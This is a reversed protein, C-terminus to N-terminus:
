AIGLNRALVRADRKLGFLTASIQDHQWLGGIFSLGPVDTSVGGAQRAFGFADTVSPEIWGLDQRYGTTWIVTSIGAQALHLDAAIPPDLAVVIPEDAPPADIGAAAIYADIIPQFFEPFRRDAADLNAVLDPAFRVLEGEIATVRGLLTTGDRGLARLNVEHGGGHGSLHVNGALRRRPDALSTAPPLVTGYHDGHEGVQDLWHFIDKGRYRRPVRVTTSVSLYVRRGTAELEEVLQVGSQGSGVVLVAGDPLDDPRRYDHVHLSRVRPSLGSALAPVYPRHFGGTAVIVHDAALERQNTRVTFGGTPRAGVHEVSTELRVPAAIQAAYAAVRGAIEDRLMFGDPDSGDYPADPFSATWNPGVLRFADWRDRWGGGLESRRELVVHERGARQLYWSMTLGAQGAGIVITGFRSPLPPM